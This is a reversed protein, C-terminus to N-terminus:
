VKNGVNGETKKESTKKTTPVDVSLSTANALPHDNGAKQPRPSDPISSPPALHGHRITIETDNSDQRFAM